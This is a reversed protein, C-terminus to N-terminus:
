TRTQGVRMHGLGLAPLGSLQWGDPGRGVIADVGVTAQAGVRARAGIVCVHADSEAPQEGRVLENLRNLTEDDNLQAAYV